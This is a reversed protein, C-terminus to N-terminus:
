KGEGCDAAPKRGGELGISGIKKLQPNNSGQNNLRKLGDPSLAWQGVPDTFRLEWSTEVVKAWEYPYQMLPVGNETINLIAHYIEARFTSVSCPWLSVGFGIRAEEWKIHSTQTEDAIRLDAEGAPIRLHVDSIPVPSRNQIHLTTRYTDPGDQKVGRSGATDFVVQGLDPYWIAVRSSYRQDDRERVLNNIRAQDRNIQQQDHFTTIAVIVACAALLLALAGTTAQMIEAISSRARVQESNSGEM